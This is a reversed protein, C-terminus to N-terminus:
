EDDDTARTPRAFIPMGFLRLIAAGVAYCLAGALLPAFIAIMRPLPLGSDSSRWTVIPVASGFNVAVSLLTLFCGAFTPKSKRDDALWASPDRGPQVAPPGASFAVDSSAAPTMKAHEAHEPTAIATAARCRPCVDGRVREGCNSCTFEAM